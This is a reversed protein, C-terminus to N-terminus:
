FCLGQPCRVKFNMPCVGETVIRERKMCSFLVVYSGQRAVEQAKRRLGTHLTHAYLTHTQVTHAFM